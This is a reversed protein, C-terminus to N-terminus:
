QALEGAATTAVALPGSRGVLSPDRLYALVLEDLSPADVEWGIPTEIPRDHRVLLQVRRAAKEAHVVCLHEGVREAEDAPGNLVTHEALIDEIPGVLQLRGQAMLVLYDAVRELESVVHSSFVVSVGEEAAMTMVLAMVDHRAVPDLRALPEDLMLLHPHRALALTLALQAQQGGSLKGVRRKVPIDLARLRASAFPRDFRRNLNAAVEVMENVSLHRYLPADQAVFAIRELADLSGAPLDGLLGVTGCTAETLGVACHLLTTKGAGNSGALAVIRGEPIALTCDSVAWTQGYRVGLGFTELVNM